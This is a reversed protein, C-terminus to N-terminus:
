VTRVVMGRGRSVEELDAKARRDLSVRVRRRGGM